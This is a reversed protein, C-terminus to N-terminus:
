PRNDNPAAASLTPRAPSIKQLRGRSGMAKTVESVISSYPMTMAPREFHQQALL